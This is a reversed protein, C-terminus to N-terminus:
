LAKTIPVACPILDFRFEVQKEPAVGPLEKPFVDPFDCVVLVDSVFTPGKKEVRTDLVYALFCM